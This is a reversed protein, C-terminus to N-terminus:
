IPLMKPRKQEYQYVSKNIAKMKRSFNILLPHFNYWHACFFTRKSNAMRIHFPKNQEIYNFFIRLIAYCPAVYFAWKKQINLYVNVHYLYIHNLFLFFEEVNAVNLFCSFLIEFIIKWSIIIDSKKRRTFLCSIFLTFAFVNETSMEDTINIMGVITASSFFYFRVFWTSNISIQSNIFVSCM